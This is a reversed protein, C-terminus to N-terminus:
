SQSDHYRLQGVGLSRPVCVPRSRLTRESETRDFGMAANAEAAVIDIEVNGAAVADALRRGVECDRGCQNGREGTKGKGGIADIEAFDAKRARHPRNRM